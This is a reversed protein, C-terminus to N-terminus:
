WEWSPKRPLRPRVQPDRMVEGDGAAENALAREFMSKLEPKVQSPPNPDPTQPSYGRIKGPIPQLARKFYRPPNM